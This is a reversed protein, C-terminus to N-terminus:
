PDLRADVTTTLFAAGPERWMRVTRAAGQQASRSAVIIL